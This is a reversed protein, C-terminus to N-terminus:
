PPGDEFMATRVDGNLAATVKIAQSPRSPAIVMQFQASTRGEAIAVSGPIAVGEDGSQLNVVVGGSPAPYALSVTGIFQAPADGALRGINVGGLCTRSVAALTQDRAGLDFRVWNSAVGNATIRLKFQGSKLIAPLIMNIQDIGALGPAAQAAVVELPWITGASDQADIRIDRMRVRNLSLGIGTAYIALRTRKDCGAIAATEPSVMGR